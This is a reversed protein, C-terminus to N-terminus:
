LKVTTMATDNGNNSYSSLRGATICFCMVPCTMPPNCLVQKSSRYLTYCKRCCAKWTTTLDNCICARTRCACPLKAHHKAPLLTGPQWPQPGALMWQHTMCHSLCGSWWAPDCHHHMLPHERLSYNQWGLHHQSLPLHEPWQHLHLERCLCRDPRAVM